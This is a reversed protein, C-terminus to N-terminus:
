FERACTSVGAGVITSSLRNVLAATRDGPRFRHVESPQTRSATFLFFDGRWYAFASSADATGVDVAYSAKIAASAPDIEVVHAGPGPQDISFGFLRGDGTGALEGSQWAGKAFHSLMAVAFTSTDISAFGFREDGDPSGPAVFLTEHAPTPWAAFSLAFTRFVHEYSRFPTKECRLTARDIKFLESMLNDTMVLYVSGSRDVAMSFPKAVPRALCQFHGISTLSADGPFFDFLEGDITVVTFSTVAKDDCAAGEIARADDHWSASSTEIEPAM